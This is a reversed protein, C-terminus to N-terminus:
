KLQVQGAAEYARQQAIRRELGEVMKDHSRRAVSDWAQIWVGFVLGDKMSTILRLGPEPTEIVLAEWAAMSGLNEPSVNGGGWAWVAGSRDLPDSVKKPPAIYARPTGYQAEVARSFNELPVPTAYYQSFEIGIILDTLGEIGTRALFRSCPVGGDVNFWNCHRDGASISTSKIGSPRLLAESRASSQLEPSLAAVADSARMGLRVGRVSLDDALVPESGWSLALIFVAACAAAISFKWESM